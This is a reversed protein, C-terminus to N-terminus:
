RSRRKLALFALIFLGVALLFPNISALANQFLANTSFPPAQGYVPHGTTNVDVVYEGTVPDVTLNGYAGNVNVSIGPDNAGNAASSPFGM